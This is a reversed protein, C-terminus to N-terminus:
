IAGEFDYGRSETVGDPLGDDWREGNLYTLPAPEYGELWQRTKSMAKVHEIVRDAISDWRHKQWKALCKKRDTKRQSKPWADWFEPFRGEGKPTHPTNQHKTDPTQPRARPANGESHTRMDIADHESSANAYANANGESEERVGNWRAAASRKAKASKDQFRAIEEDCRHQHYGDERLEFFEGLVTQVAAKEDRSHARVLRQLAAIDASLPKEKAMYLRILRHYIGDEVASLHATAQDYDGIHHEFYNM